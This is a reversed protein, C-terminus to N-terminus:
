RAGCPRWCRVAPPSCSRRPSIAGKTSSYDLLDPSGKYTTESTCNIITAGKKLHPRTAQGPLVDRLHQDPLDAALQERRHRHYGQGSAARRCQQRSDIRGLADITEQSAGRLVRKDGIDGAMRSRRRGEKEVIKQTEGADDHEALLSPSTPARARSRAAVARGIGSDGGTVLAVKGKLRGSGSYRPEWEPKPDLQSEHGPEQDQNVMPEIVDSQDQM